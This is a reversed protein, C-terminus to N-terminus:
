VKVRSKLLLVMTTNKSAEMRCRYCYYTKFVTDFKAWKAIRSDATDRTLINAVHSRLQSITWHDPPNVAAPALRRLEVLLNKPQCIHGLRGEPDIVFGDGVHKWGDFLIYFDKIVKTAYESRTLGAM